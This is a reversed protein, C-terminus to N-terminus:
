THMPGIMGPKPMGVIENAIEASPFTAGADDDRDRARHHHQLDNDTKERM